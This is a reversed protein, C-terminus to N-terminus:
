LEKKSRTWRFPFWGYLSLFINATAPISVTDILRIADIVTRIFPFCFAITDPTFRRPDRFPFNNVSRNM